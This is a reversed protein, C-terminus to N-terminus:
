MGSGMEKLEQRKKKKRKKEEDKRVMKMKMGITRKADEGQRSAAAALTWWTESRHFDEELRGEWWNTESETRPRAPKPLSPWSHRTMGAPSCRLRGVALHGKAQM